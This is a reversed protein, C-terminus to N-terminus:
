PTRLHTKEGGAKVVEEKFHSLSTYRTRPPGEGNLKPLGLPKYLFEYTLSNEQFPREGLLNNQEQCELLWGPRDEWAVTTRQPKDGIQFATILEGWVPNFETVLYIAKGELCFTVLDQKEWPRFDKLNRPPEQKRPKQTKM